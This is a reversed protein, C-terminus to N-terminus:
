KKKFLIKKRSNRRKNIRKKKSSFRENKRSKRTKSSRRRRTRRGGGARKNVLNVRPNPTVRKLDTLAKLEQEVNGRKFTGNLRREEQASKSAQLDIDIKGCRCTTTEPNNGGAPADRIIPFNFDGAVFVNKARNKDKLENIIARLANIEAEKKKWDDGAANTTSNLHVSVLLDDTGINFIDVCKKTKGTANELSQILDVKKPKSTEPDLVPLGTKPDKVIVKLNPINGLAINEKAFIVRFFNSQDYFSPTCTSPPPPPPVCDVKIKKQEHKTKGKKDKTVDKFNGVLYAHINYYKSDKDMISITYKSPTQERARWEFIDNLEYDFEPCILIDGNDNNFFSEIQAKIFKPKETNFSKKFPETFQMNNDRKGNSDDVHIEFGGYLGFNFEGSIGKLIKNFELIPEERATNKKLVWKTLFARVKDFDLGECYDKLKNLPELFVIIDELKEEVNYPENVGKIFKLIKEEGSKLLDDLSRSKGEANILCQMFLNYVAKKSDIENGLFVINGSTSMGKALVNFVGITYRESGSGSGRKTFTRKVLGHDSLWSNNIDINSGDKMKAYPFYIPNKKMITDFNVSNQLDITTYSGENTYGIFDSNYKRYEGKGEWLQDNGLTLIFRKKACIGVDQQQDPINHNTLFDRWIGINTPLSGRPDPGDFGCSRNDQVVSM